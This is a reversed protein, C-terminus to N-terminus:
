GSHHSHTADRRATRDSPRCRKRPARAERLSRPDGGNTAEEEPLAKEETVRLGQDNESASRPETLKTVDDEPPVEDEFVGSREPM